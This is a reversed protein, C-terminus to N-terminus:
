ISPKTTFFAKEKAAQLKSGQLALSGSIVLAVALVLSYGQVFFGSIFYIYHLQFGNINHNNNPTHWLKTVLVEREDFNWIFDSFSHAQTFSEKASQCLRGLDCM